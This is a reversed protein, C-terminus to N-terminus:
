SNFAKQYDLVVNESREETNTSQHSTHKYQSGDAHDELARQESYQFRWREHFTLTQKSM